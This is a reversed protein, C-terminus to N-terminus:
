RTTGAKPTAGRGSRGWQRRGYGLLGLVEIFLRWPLFIPILPLGALTRVPSETLTVGVLFYVGLAGLITMSWLFLFSWTPDGLLFWSAIVCLVSLSAQTSYNPALLTVAADILDLRGQRVGEALLRTVSASVVAHRGSAWRLRQQSAQKMNHSEKALVRASENFHIREGALLLQVSYEWDEGVTFATWGYREIVDRRFCMGTGTLMGSLGLLSKGSYFLRNKLVSTVAIVRTFPSEWPNSLYNYGQQVMHGRVLGRNFAELCLPDAAADADIIMVADYAIHAAEIQGIGWAIAAGKAGEGIVREFCMAGYLRAVAATADTCRDAIVVPLCRGPYQIAEISKLTSPLGSEENHAPILVLFDLYKPTDRLESRRSAVLSIIALIWQYVAVLSIASLISACLLGLVTSM